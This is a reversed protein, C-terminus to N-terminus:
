VEPKVNYYYEFFRLNDKQDLRKKFPFDIDSAFREISKNESTRFEAIIDNTDDFFNDSKYAYVSDWLKQVSNFISETDQIIYKLAQHQKAAQSLPQLTQLVQAILVIASWIMPFQKWVVLTTISGASVLMLFGSYINKIRRVSISYARYYSLKHGLEVYYKFLCDRM